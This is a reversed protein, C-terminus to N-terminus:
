FCLINVLIGCRMTKKGLQQILALLVNQTLPCPPNFVQTPNVMECTDVVLALSNASLATQFASDFDVRALHTRVMRQCDAFTDKAVTAPSSPSAISTNLPTTSLSRAHREFAHGVESAVSERISGLLENPKNDKQQQNTAASLTRLEKILPDATKKVLAEHEKVGRAFTTSLQVFM